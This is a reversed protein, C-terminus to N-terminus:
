KGVVAGPMPFVEYTALGSTVAPDTEGLARVAAEDDALVVALGWTAAPDLVPGFVVVDGQEVRPQWYAAHEQMVAAEAATMDLAFSPRPPILKYAFTNAAPPAMQTTEKM